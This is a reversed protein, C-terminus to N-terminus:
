EDISKRKADAINSKRRGSQKQLWADIMSHAAFEADERAGYVRNARSEVGGPYISISWLNPEIGARITYRVGRHEMSRDRGMGLNEIITSKEACQTFTLFGFDGATV